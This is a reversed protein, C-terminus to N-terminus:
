TSRARETERECTGGISVISIRWAVCACLTSRGRGEPAEAGGELHEDGRGRVRVLLQRDDELEDEELDEVGRDGRRGEQEVAAVEVARPVRLERAAEGRRLMGQCAKAHRRMGATKQAAPARRGRHNPGERM